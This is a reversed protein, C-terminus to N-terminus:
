EGLTFKYITSNDEGFLGSLLLIRGDPSFQLTTLRPAVRLGEPLELLTTPQDVADVPAFYLAGAERNAWAIQEGDPSLAFADATIELVAQEAGSASDALIVRGEDPKSFALQSGDATYELATIAFRGKTEGEPLVPTQEGTELNWLFVADSATAVAVSEGYPNLDIMTYIYSFRALSEELVDSLAQRTAFHPGIIRTMYGTDIDLFFIQGLPSSNIFVLTHNDPMFGATDGNGVIPLDFTQLLAYTTMDWIHITSNAHISAMIRSDSTFAIANVYDTPESFTTLTEGTAADILWLYRELPELNNIIANEHVAITTGDPSLTGKVLLADAEFADTTITLEQAAAFGTLGALLLATLILTIIKKPM